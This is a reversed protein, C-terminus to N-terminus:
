QPIGLQELQCNMLADRNRSFWETFQSDSLKLLTKTEESYDETLTDLKLVKTADSNEEPQDGVTKILIANSAARSIESASSQSSESSADGAPCKKNGTLYDSIEARVQTRYEQNTFSGTTPVTISQPDAKVNQQYHDQQIRISEPATDTLALIKNAEEAIIPAISKEVAYTCIKIGTASNECHSPEDQFYFLPPSVLMAPILVLIPLAPVVWLTKQNRNGLYLNLLYYACLAMLTFIGLRSVEVGMALQAGTPPFKTLWVTAGSLTSYGTNFLVTENLFTPLIAVFAVALPAFLMGFQKPSFIAVTYALLTLAMIAASTALLSILVSLTFDPAGSSILRVLYPITGIILGTYIPALVQLQHRLIITSTKVAPAAGVIVNNTRLLMAPLSALVSALISIGLTAERWNAALTQWSSPRWFEFTQASFLVFVATVAAILWFSLSHYIAFAPKSSTTKLSM